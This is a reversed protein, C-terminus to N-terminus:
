ITLLIKGIHRGEDLRRHAADADKLSFRSDIVPAISRAAFEPWLRANLAAAIASKFEVSRARLTSGTITLRKVMVPLFNVQAQPGNLFAIFVLRGDPRLSAINKPIYDGGVMDLVVDVGQGDTADLAVKAFDEERYNIAREAGLQECFRCKEASGATTLVRAGVARALQIAATGIGSSGGHILVTEGAKLGARDILNSWVTFWNEPIAAAEEDSFGAPPALCQGVPATCYEAYGGGSVLACVRDGVAFATVGEGLAAVTGAIELGPIDSAGPPPPYRGERQAVDPRNVGAVTVKVLVEGPGPQPVPRVTPRLVEPGGPASIEIATMTAPLTM